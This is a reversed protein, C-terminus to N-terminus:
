VGCTLLRNFFYNTMKSGFASNWWRSPHCGVPASLTYDLDDCKLWKNDKRWGVKEGFEVIKQSNQAITTELSGGVSQYIQAQISFGFRGNSYSNWLRDIAQLKSCPFKRMDDPTIDELSSQGAISQIVRITEWDAERWDGEKLLKQLKQYDYVETMLMMKDEIRAIRDGLDSFKSLQKEIALLRTILESEHERDSM